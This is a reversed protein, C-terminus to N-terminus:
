LFPVENKTLLSSYYVTVNVLREDTDMYDEYSKWSKIWKEEVLKETVLWALFTYIFINVQTEISSDLLLSKEISILKQQEDLNKIEKEFIEFEQKPKNDKISKGLKYMLAMKEKDLSDHKKDMDSIDTGHLKHLEIWEKETLNKKKGDEGVEQM